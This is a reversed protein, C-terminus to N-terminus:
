KKAWRIPKGVLTNHVVVNFKARPLNPSLNPRHHASRVDLRADFRKGKKPRLNFVVLYPGNLGPLTASLVFTNRSNCVYGTTANSIAAPLHLSHAFRDVCFTRRTSGDMFLLDPSDGDTFERTFSHAGFAVRLRHGHDGCSVPLIFPDLHRLDYDTGEIRRLGWSM